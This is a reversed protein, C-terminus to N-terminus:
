TRRLWGARQIPGSYEAKHRVLAIRKIKKKGWRIRTRKIKIERKKEREASEGCERAVSHIAVTGELKFM